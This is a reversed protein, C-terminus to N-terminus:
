EDTTEGPLFRVSQSLTPNLVRFQEAQVEIRSGRGKTVLTLWLTAPSTFIMLGLGALLTVFGAALPFLGPLKFARLAMKEQFIIRGNLGIDPIGFTHGAQNITPTATTEGGSQDVTLQYAPGSATARYHLAFRLNAAPYIFYAPQNASPFNPEISEAPSNEPELTIRATPQVGGAVVWWGNVRHPRHLQWVEDTAGNISVGVVGGILNQRSDVAPAFRKLRIAQEGFVFPTEKNLTAEFAHHQSWVTQIFLGIILLIIGGMILLPALRGRRHRTAIMTQDPGTEVWYGAAELQRQLENLPAASAASRNSETPAPVAINRQTQQHFPHLYPQTTALNNKKWYSRVQGSYDVFNILSIFFLCALPLWLWTSGFIHFLGLPALVASANRYLLPLGARWATREAANPPLTTLAAPEQPILAALLLVFGLGLLVM